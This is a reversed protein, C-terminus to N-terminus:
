ASQMVKKTEAGWLSHLDILNKGSEFDRNYCIKGLRREDEMYLYIMDNGNNRLNHIEILVFVCVARKPKIHTHTHTNHTLAYKHM